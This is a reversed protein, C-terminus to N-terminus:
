AIIEASGEVGEGDVDIRRGSEAGAQRFREREVSWQVCPRRGCGLAISPIVPIPWEAGGSAAARRASGRASRSGGFRTSESPM